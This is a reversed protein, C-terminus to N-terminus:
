GVERIVAAAKDLDREAYIQTVDAMRHGLVVQAAELGFRKRLETAATHRLRNPAWRHEIKWTYAQEPTSDEPPPFARDCARDISRRYGATDYREGPKRKSKRRIRNTGPRNGYNLPTRRAEHRLALRKRESDAPCFCYAESPRLLYPRLVDQARPGILITRRKGHHETKHEAPVYSWVDGSTDVDCPRILCVEQPRCGTLRQFRVMDAVVAPLYPLTTNVVADSVPAIPQTEHAETKGKLLGSVAELAQLISPPVLENEVGWRFMRRIRHVSQNITTRAYGAEVLKLRVAKLALPGFETVLRDAYLQRVFRLAMAIDHQESTPRDNKVYHVIVHQRYRKILEAVTLGADSTINLQRGNAMWEAILRDYEALSAKTGHPGLYHDTGGINVVAQESAKHKCYKPVSTGPSRPM